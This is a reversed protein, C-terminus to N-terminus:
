SVTQAAGISAGKSKPGLMVGGFFRFGGVSLIVDGISFATGLPPPIVIIDSLIWLRTSAAPLLVDKANLVRAGIENGAALSALGARELAGLTIPMYGGNALMVSLNLGLGVAVLLMGPLHRNRLVVLILLVYSGALVARPGVQGSSGPDALRMVLAQLIFALIAMWGHQLRAESLRSLRGGRALAVAMAAMVSLLLIM